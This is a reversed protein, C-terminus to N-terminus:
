LAQPPPRIFSACVQSQREFETMFIDALSAETAPTPTSGAPTVVAANHAVVCLSCHSAPSTQRAMADHVHVAQVVGMAAIVLVFWVALYKQLSSRDFQSLLSM